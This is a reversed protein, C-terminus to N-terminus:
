FEGLELLSVMVSVVDSNSPDVIARSAASCGAHVAAVQNATREIAAVLKASTDASNRGAPNNVGM